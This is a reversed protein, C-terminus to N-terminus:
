WFYFLYIIVCGYIILFALKKLFTMLMRYIKQKIEMTKLKCWSIFNHKRLLYGCFYFDLLQIELNEYFFDFFILLFLLLMTIVCIIISYSEVPVHPGCSNKYSIDVVKDVQRILTDIQGTFHIFNGKHYAEISYLIPYYIILGTYVYFLLPIPLFYVFKLRVVYEHLTEQFGRNIDKPGVLTETVKWMQWYFFRMDYYYYVWFLVHQALVFGFFVKLDWYTIYAELILLHHEFKLDKAKSYTELIARSHAMHDFEVAANYTELDLAVYFYNIFLLSVGIFIIFYYKWWYSIHKFIIKKYPKFEILKLDVWDLFDFIKDLVSM